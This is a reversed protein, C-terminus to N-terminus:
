SSQGPRSTLRAPPSQVMSAGASREIIDRYENEMAPTYDDRLRMLTLIVPLHEPDSLRMDSPIRHERCIFHGYQSMYEAENTCAKYEKAGNNATKINCIM